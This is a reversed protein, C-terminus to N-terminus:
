RGLFYRYAWPIGLLVVCAQYLSSLWVALTMEAQFSWAILLIQALGALSLPSAGRSWGMVKRFLVGICFGVVILGPFGFNAYAESPIGFAISVNPVSGEPIFGYYVSLLVNSDHPQPKNSWLIRPVVLLPLATYTQGNLYPSNAPSQSTIVCMIQFLSARELIGGAVEAESGENDALGFEFWQQFFPYVDTLTIEGTYNEAWYIKRMEDKGNHLIALILFFLGASVLPVERKPTPLARKLM